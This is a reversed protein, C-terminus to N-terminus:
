DTQENNSEEVFGFHSKLYAFCTMAGYGPLWGLLKRMDWQIKGTHPCSDWSNLLTFGNGSFWGVFKTVRVSRIRCAVMVIITIM